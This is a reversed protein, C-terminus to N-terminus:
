GSQGLPANTYTATHQGTEDGTGVGVCVTASPCSIQGIIELSSVSTGSPVEKPVALTSKSWTSGGNATSYIWPSIGVPVPAGGPGVKVQPDGPGLTISNTPTGTQTGGGVLYCDQESPCTIAFAQIGSLSPVFQWSAGGDSSEVVAGHVPQGPTTEVGGIGFCHSTDSCDLPETSGDLFGFGLPVTAESWTSGSDNSYLNVITVHPTPTPGPIFGSGVCTSQTCSLIQLLVGDTDAPTWSGGGDNTVYAVGDSSYVNTSTSFVGVCRAASTCTLHILTGAGVPLSRGEWNAGGDTTVLLVPTTGQLGGAMCFTASDDPCVLGTSFDTVGESNVETWSAGHNRSVFLQNGPNPGHGIPNTVPTRATLYCLNITPCTLAGANPATLSQQWNPQFYGALRWQGSPVAGGGSRVAANPVSIYVVLAIAVAAVSAIVLVATRRHQRAKPSMSVVVADDSLIWALLDNEESPSLVDEATSANLRRAQALREMAHDVTTRM